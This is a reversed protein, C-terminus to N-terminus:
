VYHIMRLIRAGSLIYFDIRKGEACEVFTHHITKFVNYLYAAIDNDKRNKIRRRVFNKWPYEQTKKM